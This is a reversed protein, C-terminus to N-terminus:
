RTHRLRRRHLHFRMPRVFDLDRQIRTQMPVREMLLVIDDRPAQRLLLLRNPSGPLEVAPVVALLNAPLEPGDDLTQRVVRRQSQPSCRHVLPPLARPALGSFGLGHRAWAIAIAESSGSPACRSPLGQVRPRLRRRLNVDLDRESRHRLRAVDPELAWPRPQLDVQRLLGNAARAFRGLQQNAREELFHPGVLYEPSDLLVVGNDPPM